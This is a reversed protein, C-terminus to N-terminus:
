IKVARELESGRGRLLKDLQDLLNAAQDQASAQPNDPLIQRTHLLPLSEPVVVAASMGDARPEIFRPKAQGHADGALAAFCALLLVFRTMDMIWSPFRPMITSRVIIGPRPRRWLM